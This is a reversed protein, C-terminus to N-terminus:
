DQRTESSGSLTEMLPRMKSELISYASEYYDKTNAEGEIQLDWDLLVIHYPVRGLFKALGRELAIIVNYHSLARNDKELQVPGTKSLDHGREAMFAVLGPDLERAAVWGASSFEAVGQFNKQAIGLAIQSLSSNRRDAFLIRFAKPPKTEGLAMFVTEECINKSQDCVRSLRNFVLLLAFLDRVPVTREEGEEVLDAFATDFTRGQESAMVKTGRALDANSGLFAELGQRLTQIALGVTIELDRLVREHPSQSLRASERSITVAYDGIRELSISIRLVSSIFRLHGASPSHRVVFAHCLHDISQALRNVVQDRLITESCLIKDDTRLADTSDQVARVVLGGLRRIQGRIEELDHQLREEYISM